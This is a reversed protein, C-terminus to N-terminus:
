GRGAGPGSSRGSWRGRRGPWSPSEPWSAACTTPWPTPPETVDAPDKQLCKLCITELDRPVRSYSRPRCRTRPSSRGTGDGTVDGGSVAPQGDADRLASAGLAYVDTAPGVQRTQAEAQEPAMYSPTGVMASNQTRTATKELRKALGFDAVKAAGDATLLINAPKLDRHIIGHRHAHQVARAVVEM